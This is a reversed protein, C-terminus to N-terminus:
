ASECRSRRRGTVALGQKDRYDTGGVEAFNLREAHGAISWWGGALRFRLTVGGVHASM